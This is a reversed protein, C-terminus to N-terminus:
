AKLRKVYELLHYIGVKKGRKQYEQAVKIEEERTQTLLFDKILDKEAEIQENYEEPKKLEIYYHKKNEEDKVVKTKKSSKLYEIYGM